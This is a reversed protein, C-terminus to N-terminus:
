LRMRQQRRMEEGETSDEHMSKLRQLNYEKFLAFIRAWCDEGCKRIRYKGAEEYVSGNWFPAEAETLLGRKQQGRGKYKDLVEEVIKELLKKWCQDMEEESMYRWEIMEETDQDRDDRPTNKLEETSWGEVKKKEEIGKAKEGQSMREHVVLELVKQLVEAQLSSVDIRRRELIDEWKEDEAM